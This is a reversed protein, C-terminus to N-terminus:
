KQFARHPQLDAPLAVLPVSYAFITQRLQNWMLLGVYRSWSIWISVLNQLQNYTMLLSVVKPEAPFSDSKVPREDPDYGDLLDSLLRAKHGKM